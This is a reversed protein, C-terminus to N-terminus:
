GTHNAVLKCLNIFKEQSMSQKAFNIEKSVWQINGVVYGKSSDIRDLSATGDPDVRTKGFHIDQGTLACKRNQKIFLKWAQKITISFELKRKIAGRENRRWLSSSIDGHGKWGPNDKGKPNLMCGCSRTSGDKLSDNRAIKINGCECQCLWATKSGKVLGHFETVTLKGFKKGLLRTRYNVNYRGSPRAPNLRQVQVWGM